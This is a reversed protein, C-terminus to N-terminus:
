SGVLWLKKFQQQYDAPAKMQASPTGVNAKTLLENPMGGDGAPVPLGQDHRLIADLFLWGFYNFNAGMFANEKGEVTDQENEISPQEGVIKEGSIGAGSLASPLGPDLAGDALVLYKISRDSQVASVLPQNATSPSGIDSITEAVTKSTCGPCAAKLASTFSTAFSALTPLDPVGVVAAQGKGDSDVAVWAALAKAGTAVDKPNWLNAVLVDNLPQAGALGDVIPIHARRYLPFIQSGWVASQIGSLAVGIPHCQLAQKFAAILTGPDSANYDIARFSLGAASAAAHMADATEQSQAFNAELWIVTRGAPPRHKLPQTVGIQTPAKSAKTLEAKAAQLGASGASTSQGGNSSSSNHSSSSGCGAAGAGVLIGLVVALAFRGSRAGNRGTM